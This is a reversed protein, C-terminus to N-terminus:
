EFKDSKGRNCDKCLTRLNSYETKGGKSIPIIHDVELTVGDQASRGCIQCRFNNRKLVNYRMSSSLINRQYEKSRRHEEREKILQFIQYIKNTSIQYESSYHNRGAPSTYSLDIEIFLNIPPKLIFNKCIKDEIKKYRKENLFITKRKLKPYDAGLYFQFFEIVKYLYENNIEQNNIITTYRNQWLEVDEEIITCIFNTISQNNDNNRFQNLSKCIFPFTFNNKIFKFQPKYQSNIKLLQKKLTSNKDIIRHNIYDVILIVLCIFLVIISALIIIPEM